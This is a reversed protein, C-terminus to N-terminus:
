LLFICLYTKCLYYILISLIPHVIISLPIKVYMYSPKLYVEGLIVIIHFNHTFLSYIIWWNM